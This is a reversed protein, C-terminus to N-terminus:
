NEMKEQLLLLLVQIYKESSKIIVRGSGAVYYTNDTSFVILRRSRNRWGVKDTCVIAQMIADLGGEPSDLNASM